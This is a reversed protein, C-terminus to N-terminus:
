NSIGALASSFQKQCYLPLLAGGPLQSQQQGVSGISSCSRAAQQQEPGAAIPTLLSPM